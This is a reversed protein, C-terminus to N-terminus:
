SAVARPGKRGAEIAHIQSDLTNRASVMRDLLAVEEVIDVHGDRLAKAYETTVAATAEAAEGFRVFHDSTSANASARRVVAVGHTRTLLPLMVQALESRFMMLAALDPTEERNGDLWKGIMTESLGTDEALDKQTMDCHTLATRLARAIEAKSDSRRQVTTKKDSM